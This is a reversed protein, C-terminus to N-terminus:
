LQIHGETTAVTKGGLTQQLYRWAMKMHGEGVAQGAAHSLVERALSARVQWARLCLFAM